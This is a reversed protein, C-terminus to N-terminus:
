RFCRRPECGDCRRFALVCRSPSIMPRSVLCPEPQCDVPRRPAPTFNRLTLSEDKINFPSASGTRGSGGAQMLYDRVDRMGILAISAPFHQPRLGFGSRLQRLVSVLVPGALSDAEDLFLALPRPSAKAWAGLAAGIQRGPPASRWPPPQLEAPLLDTCARWDDLIAEEAAGVSGLDASGVEHSLLVSTYRGEATLQGALTSMATTKGSQRPAHLVFYAKDDILKRVMPLRRLPPLMYHREPNCEGSVSFRRAM